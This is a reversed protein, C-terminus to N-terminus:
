AARLRAADVLSAPVASPLVDHPREIKSSFFMSEAGRYRNAASYNLDYKLHDLGEYMEIIEPASDYSVIWPIELQRVLKAVLEHDEHKYFNQYLGQGKVYYPPDLYIFPHNISPVKETVFEAADISTASIRESYRAIREIRRILDMRNFRADIKWKGTQRLGGIVGGRIIGSRTTRNLYFTSFGLEFDSADKDGQVARQRHWEKMTLPAKEIERCLEEPTDLVAKWFAYISGDLDNIHVQEAFDEFLLALAVSAGGAYPEVYECGVLDNEVMLLKIFNTVKRKGGPYRLPSAYLHATSPAM